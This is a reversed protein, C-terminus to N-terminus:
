VSSATLAEAADALGSATQLPLIKIFLLIRSASNKIKTTQFFKLLDTCTNNKYTFRICRSFSDPKLWRTDAMSNALARDRKFLFFSVCHLLASVSEMGSVQFRLGSVRNHNHKIYM